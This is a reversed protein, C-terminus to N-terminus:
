EADDEGESDVQEQEDDDDDEEEEMDPEDAAQQAVQLQAEAMRQSTEIEKEALRARLYHMPELSVLLHVHLAALLSQAISPSVSSPASFPYQAGWVVLLLLGLVSLLALPIIVDLLPTAFPPSFLLACATLTTVASMVLTIPRTRTAHTERGGISAAAGIKARVQMMKNRVIGLSNVLRMIPQTSGLESTLNLHAAHLLDMTQVAHALAAVAHSQDDAASLGTFAALAGDLLTQIQQIAALLQAANEPHMAAGRRVITHVEEGNDSAILEWTAVYKELQNSIEVVSASWAQSEEHATRFLWLDVFLTGICLSVVVGWMPSSSSSVDYFVTGISSRAVVFLLACSLSLFAIRLLSVPPAPETRPPPQVPSHAAPSNTPSASVQKAQRITNTQKPKATRTAAAVEEAKKVEEAKRTKARQKKNKKKEAHAVGSGGGASAATEVSESALLPSTVSSSSLLDVESEATSDVIPRAAAIPVPDVAAIPSPSAAVPPPTTSLTADRDPTASVQASQHGPGAASRNAEHGSHTQEPVIVPPSVVRVPPAVFEMSGSNSSRRDSPVVIPDSADASFRVVPQPMPAIPAHMPSSHRSSEAQVPTATHSRVPLHMPGGQATLSPSFTFGPPHAHSFARMSPSARPPLNAGGALAAASQAANMSQRLPSGVVKASPAGKLAAGSIPALSPSPPVMPLVSTGHGLEGMPSFRPSVSHAAAVAAILANTADISRRQPVVGVPGTLPSNHSSTFPHLPPSGAPSALRPSAPPVSSFRGNTPSHLPSAASVAPALSSGSSSHLSLSSHTSSYPHLSSQHHLHSQSSGLQHQMHHTAQMSQTQQSSPVLRHTIQMMPAQASSTNYFQQSQSQALQSNYGSPGVSGRSLFQNLHSNPPSLPQSHGGTLGASPHHMSGTHFSTIPRMEGNIGNSQHAHFAARGAGDIDEEAGDVKKRGGGRGRESADRKRRERPKYGPVMARLESLEGSYSHGYILETCSTRSCGTLRIVEECLAEHDERARGNLGYAREFISRALSLLKGSTGWGGAPGSGTTATPSNNLGGGSLPFTDPPSMLGSPFTLSKNSDGYYARYQADHATPSVVPVDNSYVPSTANARAAHAESAAALAQAHERAAAAAAHQELLKMQRDDMPQDAWSGILPSSALLSM